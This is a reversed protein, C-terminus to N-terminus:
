PHLREGREGLHVLESKRNILSQVNTFDRSTCREDPAKRILGAGPIPCGKESRSFAQPFFCNGNLGTGPIPGPGPSGCDGISVPVSCWGNLGNLLREAAGSFNLTELFNTYSVLLLGAIKNRLSTGAVLAVTTFDSM